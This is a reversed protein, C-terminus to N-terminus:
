ANVRNWVPLSVRGKVKPETSLGALLLCSSHGDHNAKEPLIPVVQQWGCDKRRAAATAIESTVCETMLKQLRQSGLIRLVWRMEAPTVNLNSPTSSHRWSAVNRGAKM